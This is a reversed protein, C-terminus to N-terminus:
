IGNGKGISIASVLLLRSVSIMLALRGDKRNLVVSVM